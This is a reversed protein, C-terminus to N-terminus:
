GTVGKYLTLSQSVYKGFAANPRGLGGQSRVASILERLLGAEENGTAYVAASIGTIEEGSAVGTRGNISGVMEAQGPVEGAVFVSGMSPYGGSAYKASGGLWAKKGVYDEDDGMNRLWWENTRGYADEEAFTGVVTGATGYYSYNAMSAKANIRGLEDPHIGLDYMQQTVKPSSIIEVATLLLSLTAGIVFGLPGSAGFSAAIFAGGLGATIAAAAASVIGGISDGKWFAERAANQLFLSAIVLTIGGLFTMANNLLGALGVQGGGGLIANNVAASLSSGIWRTLLSTLTLASIGGALLWGWNQKMWQSVDAEVFANQWKLEDAASKAKDNPTHIVNLEDFKMLQQNLKKQANAADDTAEAFEIQVEVARLYKDQGTMAAIFENVYNIGTILWETVQMFAPLLATLVTSALAGLTNKLYNTRTAYTDMVQQFADNNAQAWAYANKVGESFASTVAKIASRIARYMIIRKISSAFQSLGGSAKKATAGAKQVAKETEKVAPVAKAASGKLGALKEQLKKLEATAKSVDATAVININDITAGAM